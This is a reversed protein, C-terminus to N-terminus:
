KVNGKLSNKLIYIKKNKPTKKILSNENKMVESSTRSVNETGRVLVQTNSTSNTKNRNIKANHGQDQFVRQQLRGVRGHGGM